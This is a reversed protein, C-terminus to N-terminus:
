VITESPCGNVSAISAHSTIVDGRCLNGPAEPRQRRQYKGSMGLATVWIFTAGHSMMMEVDEANMLDM